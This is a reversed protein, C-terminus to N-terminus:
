VVIEPIRDAIKVSLIDTGKKMIKHVVIELVIDAM